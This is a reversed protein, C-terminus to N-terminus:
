VHAPRAGNQKKKVDADNFHGYCWANAADRRVTRLSIAFSAIAPKIWVV